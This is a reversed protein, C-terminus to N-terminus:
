NTCYIKNLHFLKSWILGQMCCLVLWGDVNIMLPVSFCLLYSVGSGIKFSSRHKLRDAATEFGPCLDSRATEIWGAMCILVQHHLNRKACYNFFLQLSGFILIFMPFFLGTQTLFVFQRWDDQKTKPPVCSLWQSLGHRVGPFYMSARRRYYKFDTISTLAFSIIKAEEFVYM